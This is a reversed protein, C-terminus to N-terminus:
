KQDKLKKASDRKINMEKRCKKDGSFNPDAPL